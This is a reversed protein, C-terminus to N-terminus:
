PGWKALRDRRRWRAPRGLGDIVALYGGETPIADLHHVGESRWREGNPALVEGAPEESYIKDTLKTIRQALLREGYTRRGDQALRYLEGEHIFPRGGCRTTSHEDKAIPSKPHEIWPGDLAQASYLLLSRADNQDRRTAFMWWRGEYKFLTPDSVSEHILDRAHTWCDPFQVCAYLRVTGARRSEPVMWWRGEDHIVQPYSLHFAERLVVGTPKWNLGDASVAHAIAGPRGFEQVEFFMHYTDSDEVVFPDAVFWAHTEPVNRATICPNRGGVANTLSFQNPGTLTGISWGSRFRVGMGRLQYPTYSLVRLNLFTRVRRGFSVVGMNEAKSDPEHVWIRM